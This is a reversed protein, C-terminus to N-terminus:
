RDLIDHYIISAVRMDAETFSVSGHELAIAVFKLRSILQTTREGSHQNEDKLAAILDHIKDCLENAESITFIRRTPKKGKDM